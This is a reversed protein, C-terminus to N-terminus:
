YRWNYFSTERIDGTFMRDAYDNAKDEQKRIRELEKLLAEADAEEYESVDESHAWYLKYAEKRLEASNM